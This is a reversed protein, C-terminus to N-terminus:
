PVNGIRYLLSRHGYDLPWSVWVRFSGEADDATAEANMWVSDHQGCVMHKLGEDLILMVFAHQFSNALAYMHWRRDRYEADEKIASRIAGLDEHMLRNRSLNADDVIEIDGNQLDALM